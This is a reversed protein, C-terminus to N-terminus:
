RMNDIIDQVEKESMELDEAIEPVTRGKGLKKRIMDALLEERGEERAEAREMRIHKEADYEYISVKKAEARNKQLFESLIGERICETIAREVADDLEMIKAYKRVRATYEAYERLSKCTDLLKVNHGKNINLMVAELELAPAEGRVSYLESLKLVQRDPQEEEGNYFIVFRPSPIMVKKRSYLNNDRTMQSYLDAVYMLYRLPLNPSYTSQHEYLSLRLDIVFSIDNYMAMYVANELTNIELLGPDDYATGNVANYLELLEEPESYLMEFIRAKFKRNAAADNKRTNGTM